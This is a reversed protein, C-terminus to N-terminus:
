AKCAVYERDYGRLETQLLLKFAAVFWVNLFSFVPRLEGATYFCTARPVTPFVGTYFWHAVLGKAVSGWGLSCLELRVWKVQVVLLLKNFGSQKGFVECCSEWLASAMVTGMQASLSWFTFSSMPSTHTPTEAWATQNCLQRRCRWLRYLVLSISAPVAIGRWCSSVSRLGLRKAARSGVHTWLLYECPWQLRQGGSAPRMYLVVELWKLWASFM